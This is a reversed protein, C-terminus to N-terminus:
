RPLLKSYIFDETAQGHLEAAVRRILTFGCKELLKISALNRTDVAALLEKGPFREALQRPVWRLGQTAVGRRWYRPAVKYGVWLTQDAFLTVQLTGLCDDTRARKIVWNLWVENSGAPAGQALQSYEAQMAALSKPPTEPIYRYLEADSFPDFLSAAHEPALPEFCLETM